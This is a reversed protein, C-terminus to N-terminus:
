LVNQPDVELVLKDILLGLLICKVTSSQVCNSAQLQHVYLAMDGDIKAM